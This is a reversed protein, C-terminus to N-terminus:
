HPQKTTPIRNETHHLSLETYRPISAVGIGSPRPLSYPPHPHSRYQRCECPPAHMSSDKCSSQQEREREREREIYIYIYICVCVYIYIKSSLLM